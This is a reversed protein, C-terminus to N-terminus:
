KIAMKSRIYFFQQKWVKQLECSILSGMVTPHQHMFSKLIKNQFIRFLLRDMQMFNVKLLAKGLLQNQVFTKQYFTEDIIKTTSVGKELLMGAYEMTKRTTNSHKFVGTDHVIGTYLCQACEKSIKDEEFIQCLVECTASAQPDIKYFDGFGDNSIHHDIGILTKACRVMAAFPEYRDESGCDLVFFLDYSEDDKSETIIEQAHSLFRFEASISELYVDVKKGSYNDLIYQKLALCSGICDGDPHIHGTIAITKAKSIQENFHKMRVGM